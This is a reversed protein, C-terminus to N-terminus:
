KLGLYQLLWQTAVEQGIQLGAKAAKSGFSNLWHGTKEGLAPKGSKEQDEDLAKELALIEQESLHAKEFAGKLAGFDGPPIVITGVQANVTGGIM